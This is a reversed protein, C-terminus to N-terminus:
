GDTREGREDDLMERLKGKGRAYHTRATGLAVGLVKAAEEITLGQYFVLHLADRQREPLQDLAALLRASRESREVEQQPNPAPNPLHDGSTRSSWLRRLASTRRGSKRRRELSTVRIVGFLWTRFSSRGAYKARGALVKLYVTQLVDEAEHRDRDCCHLAWGFSEQHYRELESELQGSSENWTEHREGMHDTPKRM